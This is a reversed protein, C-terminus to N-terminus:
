LIIYPFFNNSEVEEKGLDLYLLREASDVQDGLLFDAFLSLLVLTRSSIKNRYQRSLYEICITGKSICCAFVVDDFTKSQQETSKSNLSRPVIAIPQDMILQINTYMQSIISDILNINHMMITKLQSTELQKLNDRSCLMKVASNVIDFGKQIIRSCDDNDDQKQHIFIYLIGDDFQKYDIRRNNSEMMQLKWGTGNTCAHFVASVIGIAAYPPIKTNGYERTLIPLGIDDVIILLGDVKVDHKLM